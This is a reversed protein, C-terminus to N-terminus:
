RVTQEFASRLVDIIKQQDREQVGALLEKISFDSRSGHRYLRGGHYIALEPVSVHAADLAFFIREDHARVEPGALEIVPRQALLTLVTDLTTESGMGAGRELLLYQWAWILYRNFRRIQIERLPPGEDDFAWMTSTAIGVLDVFFRRVDSVERPTHAATLAHEHLMAWVDAHYDMEELVKPFRGIGRSSFRTLAQPGRHALEHLVLMRLARRRVKDDPLRRALRTLWHDDLQWVNRSPELRFSDEVTRTLVDVETRKLPTDHLAPL